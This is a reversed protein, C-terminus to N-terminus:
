TPPRLRGCAGDFVPGSKHVATALSARCRKRVCPGLAFRRRAESAPATWFTGGFIHHTHRTVGGCRRATAQRESWRASCTVKFSGHPEKTFATLRSRFDILTLRNPIRGASSQ